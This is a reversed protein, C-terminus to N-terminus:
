QEISGVQEIRVTGEPGEYLNELYSGTADSGMSFAFEDLAMSNCAYQEHVRETRHGSSRLSRLAGKLRLVDDEIIAACLGKASGEGAYVVAAHRGDHAQALTSVTILAAALSCTRALRYQKM